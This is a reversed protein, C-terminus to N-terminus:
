VFGFDTAHLTVGNDFVAISAAGTPGIGDPDWYLTHTATNYIFQGNTGVRGGVHFEDATLHHGATFGFDAAHFILKDGSYGGSVFDTIHDLGNNGGPAQFVFSDAGAGGTLTDNGGLGRLIDNGDGGNIINAANNGTITNGLVNGTGNVANYGTLILTEVNDPLTYTVASNIVDTGANVGEIVVDGTNEVYYTDNGLGGEMTDAGQIGNLLNNGDNGILHNAEGNGVAKINATGTLTVNEIYGAIVFDVSSLVTDTGGNNGETIKDGANDVVYTDDGAGGVMTDAGTGGDLYDNGGLGKLTDDGGLGNITDNGATGTLTEGQSTGNLPGGGEFRFSSAALSAAMVGELLVTATASFTVLAGDRNQTLSAYGTFGDTGSVDIIDGTSFDTITDHGDGASFVFSDNGAGGTLTDDGGGGTIRNAVDNGTIVDDGAGGIANEITVGYAIAVNESGNYVDSPLAQTYWSPLDLRTRIESDTEALGISSFTGPNLNIVSKLVQDSADITDNGGGDWITELILANTAWSYTTDGSRTSMNAGYLHQLAEVDFLMYTSPTLQSESWSYSAATGSVTVLTTHPASTYSMVTYRLSDLSTDLTVGESNPDFPHKLGMAHGTEHLLTSFGWAGPSWSDDSWSVANNIWVDGGVNSETTSVITGDSSYSYGFSPYSAYGSQSTPQSSMGYTVQGVGSVETFTLNTLEAVQVLVARAAAAEAPTFASFSTQPDFSPAATLFSYTLKVGTGLGGPDNMSTGVAAPFNWRNASNLQYLLADDGDTTTPM